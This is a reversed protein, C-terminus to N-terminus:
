ICKTKIRIKVTVGKGPESYYTFNGGLKEIRNELNVLGFGKADNKQAPYDFGQGDDTYSILLVGDQDIINIHITTANAYKITNNILETMIRYITFEILEDVRCKLNTKISFNIDKALKVKECFSRIAHLLGYKALIDPSLNNSIERISSAAEEILQYARTAYNGTNHKGQKKGLTHLYIMSTSLLPGLGDHLEKAFRSREAEESRVMTKFIEEELSKKESLDRVVAWVLEKDHQIRKYVTVDAYILNGDKSMGEMEITRSNLRNQAALSLIISDWDTEKDHITFKYDKGILEDRTYGLLDCYSQNCESIRLNEDLFVMGDNSGEFISRYKSESAVKQIEAEKQKTIDISISGVLLKDDPTFLPFKIVDYCRYGEDERCTNLEKRIAEKDDIVKNDMQDLVDAIEKPFVEERHLNLFNIDSANIYELIAKNAFMFRKNEDKITVHFPYADMFLQFRNKQFDIAAISQKLENSYDISSGLVKKYLSFFMNLMYAIYFLILGYMIGHAVWMYFNVLYSNFDPAPVLMETHFLIAIGFFVVLYVLAYSIALRLSYFVLPIFIMAFFLFAGGTLTYTSLATVSLILVIIVLLHLKLATKLKNKVLLLFITACFILTHVVFADYWGILYFRILSLVASPLIVVAAGEIAKNIIRERSINLEQNFDM